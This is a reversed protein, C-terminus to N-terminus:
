VFPCTHSLRFIIRRQAPIPRCFSNLFYKRSRCDFFPWDLGRYGQKCSEYLYWSDLESHCALVNTSVRDRVPCPDAGPRLWFHPKSDSLSLYICYMRTVDSCVHQISLSRYFHQIELCIFFTPWKLFSSLLLKLVSSDLLM